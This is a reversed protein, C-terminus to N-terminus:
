GSVAAGAGSFVNAGQHSGNPALGQCPRVRRITRMTVVTTGPTSSQEHRACFTGIGLMASYVKTFTLLRPCTMM